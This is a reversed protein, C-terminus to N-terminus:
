TEDEEDEVGGEGGDTRVEERQDPILDFVPETDGLVLLAYYKFYTIVPVNILLYIPVYILIFLIALIAISAIGTTTSIMAELGGLASMIALGVAGFPILLILGVLGVFISVLIGVAITAVFKILVYVGYQKWERKLTPWFERWGPIVGVDRILMIPAVFDYTFGQILALVIALIIFVPILIILSILGLPIAVTFLAALLIFLPAIFLITIGIQFLFLRLGKWFHTKFYSLIRVKRNRLSDLLVFEMVGGILGFLLALGIVALVIVAIIWLDIGLEPPPTEGGDSFTTPYNFNGTPFNFGGAGTFFAILALKLWLWKDFPLLFNKSTEYADELCDIAYWSM